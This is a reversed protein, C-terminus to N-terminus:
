VLSFFAKIGIEMNGGILTLTLISKTQNYQVSCEFNAAKVTFGTSFHYSPHVATHTGLRHNTWIHFSVQKPSPKARQLSKSTLVGKEM